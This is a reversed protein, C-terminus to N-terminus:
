IQNSCTTFHKLPFQKHFRISSCFINTQNWFCPQSFVLARGPRLIKEFYSMKFVNCVECPYRIENLMNLVALFVASWKGPSNIKSRYSGSSSSRANLTIPFYKTLLHLMINCCQLLIMIFLENAPVYSRQIEVEWEFIYIRVGAIYFGLCASSKTSHMSLSLSSHASFTRARIRWTWSRGAASAM